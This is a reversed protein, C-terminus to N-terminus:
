IQFLEILLRVLQLRVVRLCEGKGLVCIVLLSVVDVSLATRKVIDFLDLRGQQQQVALFVCNHGQFLRPQHRRRKLLLPFIDPKHLKWPVSV